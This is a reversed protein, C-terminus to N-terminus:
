KYEGPNLTSCSAAEAFTPEKCWVKIRGPIMMVRQATLIPRWIRPVTGLAQVLGAGVVFQSDRDPRYLVPQWGNLDLDPCQDRVDVLEGSVFAHVTSQNPLTGQKLLTQSRGVADVVFSANCLQVFNAMGVDPHHHIAFVFVADHRLFVNVSRRNWDEIEPVTLLARRAILRRYTRNLAAIDSSLESLALAAEPGFAEVDDPLPVNGRSPSRLMLPLRATKM